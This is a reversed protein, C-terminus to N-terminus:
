KLALFNGTTLAQRLKEAASGSVTNTALLYNWIQEVTPAGGSLSYQLALNSVTNVVGGGPNVIFPSEGPTNDYVIGEIVVQQNIVIKWDNILFYVDGTYLGGGVPDGGTTRFAAYFESNERVQVWEKWASYIDEKMRLFTEGPNIIIKRNIGDFTVKQPGFYGEEPDYPAWFEWFCYNVTTWSM